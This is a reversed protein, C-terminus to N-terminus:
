KPVLEALAIAHEGAVAYLLWLRGDEEYLCPDRVQCARRDMVAGYTSPEVPLDAGEYDTSPALLEHLGDPRWAQWDADLDVTTFLLREPADGVRSFVVWLRNGRLLVAAHRSTPPFTLGASMTMFRRKLEDRTEALFWDDGHTVAPPAHFRSLGDPSKLFQGPMAWAYWADRWRFVRFYAPGLLEPRTEFDLGNASLAVRTCQGHTESRILGHFYLRIQRAEHDVIADPSALHPREWNGDHALEFSDQAGGDWAIDFGSESLPLVGPGHVRWPGEIRDAYALRIYQGEHHAFYLYYRGLADPVWDPVRILSPGNINTGM